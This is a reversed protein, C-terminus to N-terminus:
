FTYKLGFQIQRAPTRTAVIQGAAGDVRGQSTFPVMLPFGFNTHNFLNFFEARFELRNNETVSFRKILSFDVTAIGPLIV